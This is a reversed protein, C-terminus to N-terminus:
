GIECQQREWEEKVSEDDINRLVILNKFRGIAKKLIRKLRIRKLLNGSHSNGINFQVNSSSVTNSEDQNSSPSKNV